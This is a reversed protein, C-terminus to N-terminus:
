AHHGTTRPEAPTTHATSILVFYTMVPVTTSCTFPRVTTGTNRGNRLNHNHRRLKICRKSTPSCRDTARKTRTRTTAMQMGTDNVILGFDSVEGRLCFGFGLLRRDHPLPNEIPTVSRLPTVERVASSGSSSLPLVDDCLTPLSVRFSAAAGSIAANVSRDGEAGIIAFSCSPPMPLQVALSLV